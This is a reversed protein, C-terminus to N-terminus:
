IEVGQFGVRAAQEFRDLLEWENFMTTVSAALRRM